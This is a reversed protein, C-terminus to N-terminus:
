PVYNSLTDSKCQTHFCIFNCVRRSINGHSGFTLLLAGDLRRAKKLIHFPESAASTYDQWTMVHMFAAMQKWLPWHCHWLEPSQDTAPKDAPFSPLFDWSLGHCKYQTTHYQSLNKKKSASRSERRLLREVITGHDNHGNDDPAPLSPRLVSPSVEFNCGSNARERLIIRLQM